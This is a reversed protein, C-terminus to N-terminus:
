YKQGVDKTEMGKLRYIQNSKVIQIRSLIFDPCHELNLNINTHRKPACTSHVPSARLASFNHVM